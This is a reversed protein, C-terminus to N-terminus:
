PAITAFVNLKSAPEDKVDTAIEVTIHMPGTTSPAKLKIELTHLTRAEAGPSTVTVASESPKTATIRFPQSSRVIVRKVVESGPKLTGMVLNSPSVTVASQVNAVVAIPLTPSSSDNTKLTIEDKFFGPPVNPKLTATLLYGVQGGNGSSQREIKAEMFDTKTNMGFIGWSPTGGAYTLQLAVSPTSGRAVVGFDAAGPTITIDSRIFCSLNLDVEAYAPKSLVLTLGSPKYGTFKTTDLVAEISTQTGPPIEKAGVKVETCGCKTRWDLIQIDQNTRNVLLFKHRLKSGRAVTGFDHAREPFAAQVWEQATAATTSTLGAVIVAWGMVRTNLM